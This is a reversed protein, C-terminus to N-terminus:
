SVATIYKKYDSKKIRKKLKEGANRGIREFEIIETLGDTSPIKAVDVDMNKSLGRYVGKGTQIKKTDDSRFLDFIKNLIYNEDLFHIFNNILPEFTNKISESGRNFANRLRHKTAIRHTFLPM